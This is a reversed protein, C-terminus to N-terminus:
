RVKKAVGYYEILHHPHEGDAIMAFHRAINKFWMPRSLHQHHAIEKHEATPVGFGIYGNWKLVRWCESLAKNLDEAHELVHRAFVVDFTENPYPLNEIEGVIVNPLGFKTLDSVIEPLIDCAYYELGKKKFFPYAGGAAPGIDLVKGSTVPINKIIDMYSEEEYALDPVKDVSMGLEKCRRMHDRQLDENTTM